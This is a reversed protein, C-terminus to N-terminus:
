DSFYKEEFQAAPIAESFYFGQGFDCGMDKLLNLHQETEIGEAVVKLDLKHAMMIMAECLAYEQSHKALNKIFSQDIKIYDIHFDKLYSLSSYGTGFDDLAVEIGADRLQLLQDLVEAESEMLLGETIEIVLGRGPLGIATLHKLWEFLNTEDRLQVPSKNISVQFDKSLKSEWKKAQNTTEKFIWNGIANILGSEEALPIFQDPGIVVPLDPNWRILAEAKVVRGTQLEVIPQYYISFENAEMAARMDELMKQRKLAAEQMSPTFYCFRGRGSKKALYMSQDANKLLVDVEASDSPFVTIGISASIYLQKNDISYPESLEEIINQAIRDINGTSELESIIVTFEDGGIRSVTDSERVSKTMRSAAEVLLRDGIEHSYTDNIEKFRDLDVFLLAFKSKNRRSRKTEQVLLDQFMRRNPLKTLSDFNAQKLILEEAKKKETIDSFLGIFHDAENDKSAVTNINLAINCEGGSKRRFWLEGDWHGMQRLYTWMDASARNGQMKLSLEDTTKGIIEEESYGTISSFAPNIAIIRNEINTVFMGQISNRYILSALERETIDSHTGIMRVADGQENREVIKGRSLIWSWSGNPLCVRHKNIYFETKGDLHAQLQGQVEALDDPHIHYNSGDALHNPLGVIDFLAEGGAYSGDGTEINWDWVNEGKGELLFRWREESELLAKEARKRLAKERMLELSRSSLSDYMKLVTEILVRMSGSMEENAIQKAQDISHGKEIALVAIAMRKDTDLIHAALWQSLFSVVEHIIQDFPKDSDNKKLAAVKQIFSDHTEEHSTFWVDDSFQQHWIQEETKFHYDAYDALEDFVKDLVVQSSRNALHAALRNLIEVLIKHQEDVTALGTEFNTDWPFIEFYEM